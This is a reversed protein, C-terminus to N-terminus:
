CIRTSRGVWIITLAMIIFSAWESNSVMSIIGLSWNIQDEKFFFVSQKAVNTLNDKYLKKKEFNYFRPINKQCYNKDTFYCNM